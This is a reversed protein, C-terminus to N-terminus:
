VHFCLTIQWVDSIRFSCGISSLHFLVLAVVASQWWGLVAFWLPPSDERQELSWVSAAELFVLPWCFYFGTGWVSVRGASVLGSVTKQYRYLYISFCDWSAPQQTANWWLLLLRTNRRWFQIQSYAFVLLVSLLFSDIWCLFFEHLLM